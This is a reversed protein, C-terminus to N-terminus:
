ARAGRRDIRKLVAHVMDLDRRLADNEERLSRIQAARDALVRKMRQKARRERVRRPVVKRKKV